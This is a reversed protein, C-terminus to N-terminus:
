AAGGKVRERVYERVDSARYRRARGLKAYTLHEEPIRYVEERSKGIYEAVDKATLNWPEGIPNDHDANIVELDPTSM